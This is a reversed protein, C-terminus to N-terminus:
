PRPLRFSVVYFVAELHQHIQLHIQLHLHLHSLALGPQSSPMCIKHRSSRSRNRITCYIRVSKCTPRRPRGFKGQYGIGCLSATVAATCSSRASCAASSRRAIRGHYRNRIWHKGLSHFERGPRATRSKRSKYMGFCFVRAGTYWRHRRKARTQIADRAHPEHDHKVLYCCM